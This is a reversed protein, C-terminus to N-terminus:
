SLGRGGAKDKRNVGEERQTRMMVEIEVIEKSDIKKTNSM